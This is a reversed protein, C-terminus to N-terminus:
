KQLGRISGLSDAFGWLREAHRLVGAAGRCSSEEM